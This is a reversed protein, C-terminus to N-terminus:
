NRTPGALKKGNQYCHYLQADLTPFCAIPILTDLDSEEEETHCLYCVAIYYFSINESDFVKIYTYLKEEEEDKFEYVEDPHELTPSLYCTFLSFDDFDIDGAQKLGLLKALERSKKENISEAFAIEDPPAMAQLHALQDPDNPLPDSLKLQTKKGKRYREILQESRTLMHSMVFLPRHEFVLCGLAVYITDQGTTIKTLLFWLDNGASDTTQYIEDPNQLCLNILAQGNPFTEKTIALEQRYCAEQRKLDELTSGYFKKVCCKNCFAQGGPRDISLRLASNDLPKKCEHCQCYKTQM